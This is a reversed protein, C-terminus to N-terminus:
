YIVTVLPLNLVSAGTTQTLSALLDDLEAIDFVGTVKLDRLRDRAIIISSTQYRQVEDIVDGLSLRNFILKGRQWSGYTALNIDNGLVPPMGVQYSAREGALLRVAKGTGNSVEVIGEQVTVRTHDGDIRVGYVTGVAMAEGGLVSVIFPHEADKAVEFIVEGATLDIRRVDDSYDVSFASATNMHAVTGDPLTVTEFQGIGTSYDANWRDLIGTGQIGGVIMLALVACLSAMAIVTRRTAIAARPRSNVPRRGRSPMALHNPSAFKARAGAWNKAVNTEDVAGLLTEADVAARQHDDSQSRWADFAAYEAPTADGSHLRVLWEIAQDSLAIMDDDYANLMAQQQGLGGATM